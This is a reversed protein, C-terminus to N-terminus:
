LANERHTPAPTNSCICSRSRSCHRARMPRELVGLAATISACDV